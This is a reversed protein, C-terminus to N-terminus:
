ARPVLARAAAVWDSVSFFMPIGVGEIEAAMRRTFAGGMAAGLIPKSSSLDLERLRDAVDEGLPVDQFVFWPMVMDVAPDDLLAQIGVRYDESTASGTM